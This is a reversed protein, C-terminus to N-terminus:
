GASSSRGVRGLDIGAADQGRNPCHRGPGHFLARRQRSSDLRLRPEAIFERDGIRMKLKGKILYAISEHDPHTHPLEVYGKHRSVQLLLGNEGVILRKAEVAGAPLVTGEVQLVPEANVQLSNVFLRGDSQLRRSM